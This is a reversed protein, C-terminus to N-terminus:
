LVSSCVLAVFSISGYLKFSVYPFLKEILDCLTAFTERQDDLRRNVGDIFAEIKAINISMMKQFEEFGNRTEKLTDLDKEVDNLKDEIHQYQRDLKRNEEESNKFQENTDKKLAAMSKKLEKLKDNVVDHQFHLVHISKGKGRIRNVICPAHKFFSIERYNANKRENLHLAIRKKMVMIYVEIIDGQLRLM